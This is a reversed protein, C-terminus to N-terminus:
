RGGRVRAVCSCVIPCRRVGLLAACHACRACMSAFATQRLGGVHVAAELRLAYRRVRHGGFLCHCTVCRRRKQTCQQPRPPGVAPPARGATLARSKAQQLPRLWQPARRAVRGGCDLRDGLVVGVGPRHRADMHAALAGRFDVARAQPRGADRREACPQMARQSCSASIAQASAASPQSSSGPRSFTVDQAPSHPLSRPARSAARGALVDRGGHQPGRGGPM